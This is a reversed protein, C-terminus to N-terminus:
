RGVKYAPKMKLIEDLPDTLFIRLEDNAQVVKLAGLQAEAGYYDIHSAYDGLVQRFHYSINSAQKSAHDSFVIV